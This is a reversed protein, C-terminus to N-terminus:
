NENTVQDVAVEGDLNRQIQGDELSSPLGVDFQFM